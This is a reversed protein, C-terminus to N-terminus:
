KRTLNVQNSTCEQSVQQTQQYTRLSTSVLSNPGVELTTGMQVRRLVQLIEIKAELKQDENLRKFTPILSILFSKDEDIEEDTKKQQLLKLVVEEQFTPKKKYTVASSSDEKKNDDLQRIVERVERFEDQRSTQPRSEEQRLSKTRYEDSRIIQRHDEQQLRERFEESSFDEEFEDATFEEQKIDEMEIEEIPLPSEPQTEPDIEATIEDDVTTEEVTPLLFMLMDFYIYKRRKKTREGPIEKQQLRLERKFCTRLNQWRKQIERGLIYTCYLLYVQIM